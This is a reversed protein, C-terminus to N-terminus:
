GKILYIITGLILILGIITKWDLDEISFKFGLGEFTAKGLTIPKKLVNIGGRTQNNQGLYDIM